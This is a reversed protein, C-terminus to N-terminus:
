LRVQTSLIQNALNSQVRAVLEDPVAGSVLSMVLHTQKSDLYGGTAPVFWRRHIADAHAQAAASYTEAATHNGLVHSIKAVLRTCYLMYNNNFLDAEQSDSRESGHPTIWDGLYNWPDHSGWRQNLGTKTSFSQNWFEILRRQANYTRQLLETDGTRLYVEWPMVVVFGSWGPGGGGDITPATHAIYGSADAAGQTHAPYGQIDIIDQAWKTYFRASAINDLATELTTHADGLYGLRERHPCDVSMGGTVLNAMTRMSTDYIRNLTHNSCQFYGTRIRGNDPQQDSDGSMSQHLSDVSDSQLTAINGVRVGTITPTTSPDLGSIAVFRVEAYSFRPEFSGTGSPGFVYEHRMNYQATFDGDKFPLASQSITVQGGPSGRMGAVVTWGSFVQEMEVLLVPAKSQSNNVWTVTKPRIVDRRQNPEAVDMSLSRGPLPYVKAAEWPQQKPRLPHSWAPDSLNGDVRDGGFNSNKWLGIHRTSSPHGSWSANTVLLTRPTTALANSGPFYRVAALVLPAKTTNFMNTVAPNVSTFQTWGPGLWLGMTNVQGSLLMSTIDYARVYVRKALDSVSPSLVDHGVKEGNIFLEHFGYSAVYAM